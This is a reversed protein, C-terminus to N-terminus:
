VCRFVVERDFLTCGCFIYIGFDRTQLFHPGPRTQVSECLVGFKRLTVSRRRGLHEREELEITAHCERKNESERALEELSIGAIKYCSRIPAFFVSNRGCDLSMQM